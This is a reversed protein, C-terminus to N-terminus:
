SAAAQPADPESLRMAMDALLGALAQRDTTTARLTHSEEEIREALAQQVRRLDDGLAKSQQLLQDRLESGDTSTREDLADVRLEIASSVAAADAAAAGIAETRERRETALRDGLAGVEKKIYAELADLRARTEERLEASASALRSELAAFRLEYDQMQGGFLIERIKDVNADASPETMPAPEAAVSAEADGDGGNRGKADKHAAM